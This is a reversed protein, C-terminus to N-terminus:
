QENSINLVKKLLVRRTRDQVIARYSAASKGAYIREFDSHFTDEEPQQSLMPLSSRKSDVTQLLSARRNTHQGAMTARRQKKSHNQIYNIIAQNGGEVMALINPLNWDGDEFPIVVEIGKFPKQEGKTIHRFACDKCLLTGYTPSGYMGNKQSEKNEVSWSWGCDKACDCCKDNGPLLRVIQLIDKPFSRYLPAKKRSSLIDDLKAIDNMLKKGKGKVENVEMKRFFRAFDDCIKSMNDVAGIFQLSGNPKQSIGGEHPDPTMMMMKEAIKEEMEFAKVDQMPDYNSSINNNRRYSGNTACARKKLAIPDRCHELWPALEAFIKLRAVDEDSSLSSNTMDSENSRRHKEGQKRSLIVPGWDPDNSRGRRFRHMGIFSRLSGGSNSKSDSEDVLRRKSDSDGSLRRKSESEGSFRQESDRSEYSHGTYKLDQDEVSLPRDRGHQHHRNNKPPSMRDYDSNNRGRRNQAELHPSSRDNKSSRQSFRGSENSNRRQSDPHQHHHRGMPQRRDRDSDRERERRESGNSRRHEDFENSRRGDPKSIDFNRDSGNSRRREHSENSRRRDPKSIDASRDYGNSRRHEDFENRRKGDTKRSNINRDSGNSYRPEARQSTSQKIADGRRGYDGHDDASGVDLLSGDANETEIVKMLLTNSMM